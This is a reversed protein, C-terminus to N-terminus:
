RASATERAERMFHSRAARAQAPLRLQVLFFASALFSVSDIAFVWGTGAVAILIGSVAPGFVNMANRSIGLLANASRLREAEITQPVLGDSAPGFFASAAGFVTATVFFLPLTMQHTLLMTATFAEVVARIGDCALMVAQRPLRDAIVGGVLTFGVRSATFAALVGGLALQSSNVSLVAFTLAVPVLADGVASSVRGLWLLRFQREYLPAFADRLGM